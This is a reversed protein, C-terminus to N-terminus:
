TGCRLARGGPGERSIRPRGSKTVIVARSLAPFGPHCITFTGNTRTRGDPRYTLYHRSGFARYEARTGNGPAQQFAVIREQADRWRNRNADVFVLWNESWDDERDCFHGDRSHCIVVDTNCRIAESRAMQLLGSLMNVRVVIRNEALLPRLSSFAVLSVIAVVALTVVIEILTFGSAPRGAFFSKDQFFSGTGVGQRCRSASTFVDM